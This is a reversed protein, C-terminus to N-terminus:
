IGPNELFQRGTPTIHNHELIGIGILGVFALIEDFAHDRDGTVHQLDIGSMGDDVAPPHRAAPDSFVGIIVTRAETPVAALKVHLEELVSDIQRKILIVLPNLTLPRILYLRPFNPHQTVVTV